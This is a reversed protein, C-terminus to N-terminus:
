LQESDLFTNTTYWHASWCRQVADFKLLLGNVQNNLGHLCRNIDNAIRPDNEKQIRRVRVPIFLQDIRTMSDPM